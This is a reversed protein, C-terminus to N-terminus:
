ARRRRNARDGRRLMASPACDISTIRSTIACHARWTLTPKNSPNAPVKTAPRIMPDINNLVLARSGSVSIAIVSSSM